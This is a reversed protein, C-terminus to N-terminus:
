QIRALAANYIDEMEKAGQEILKQQFSAFESLPRTGMIFKDIEQEYYVNVKNELKKLADMEEDTFPPNMVQHTIEGSETFADIQKAMELMYPDTTTTDWTEDVHVAFGFLGLGVEGRMMSVLDGGKDKVKDQLQQTPMHMGNEITYHEGELGFNTLITGEESYFYDFLKVIAEPDSVKSSIAYDDELWDRQYRQARAEGFSNTMPDLMQFRYSPDLQKLAPNFVRAGFSNNDYYFFSKGSSLKEWAMDQTNIAYDPDFIGDAYMNAMFSIVEKFNEHTAGYIYRQENPEYYVPARGGGGSGLPFSLLNITSLTKQRTTWPHSDPYLRKLEKLVQYLEDWTEPTKLNHKELLDMRILPQPAVSVRYNELLPFSYLEGDVMLKKIEPRDEILKMFNPMLHQYDSLNLFIGTRAYTQVEKGTLRMVDPINNTAILSTKKESYSSNPVLELKINVNMRKSIEDLIPLNTLMPQNPSDAAMWTVNVPTSPVNSNGSSNSSSSSNTKSSSNSPSNNGNTGCAAIVAAILILILAVSFRRKM